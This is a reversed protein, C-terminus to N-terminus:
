GQTLFFQVNYHVTDNNGTSNGFLATAAPLKWPPNFYHDAMQQEGSNSLFMTWRTNAAGTGQRWTITNNGAGAQFAQISCVCISFGAPPAAIITIEVNDVSTVSIPGHVNPVPALMPSNLLHIGRGQLDVMDMTAGLNAIPVTVGLVVGQGGTLLPKAAAATQGQPFAGEVDQAKAM